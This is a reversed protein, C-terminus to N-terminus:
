AETKRQTLQVSPNRASWSTVIYNFISLSLTMNTWLLGKDGDSKVSWFCMQKLLRCRTIWLRTESVAVTMGVDNFEIKLLMRDPRGPGFHYTAGAMRIHPVGELKISSWITAPPFYSRGRYKVFSDVMYLPPVRWVIYPRVNKCYDPCCLTVGGRWVRAM